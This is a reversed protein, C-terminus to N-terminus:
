MVQVYLVDGLLTDKVSLLFNLSQPRYLTIKYSNEISSLNGDLEFSIDYNGKPFIFPVHSYNKIFKTQIEKGNARITLTHYNLARKNETLFFKSEKSVLGYDDLISSITQSNKISNDRILKMSYDINQDNSINIEPSSRSWYIKSGLVISNLNMDSGLNENVHTISRYGLFIDIFPNIRYNVQVEPIFHFSYNNNSITNGEQNLSTNDLLLGGGLSGRLSLGKVGLNEYRSTLSFSYLEAQKRADGKNFAEIHEWNTEVGFNTLFDSGFGIRYQGENNFGVGINLYENGGFSSLSISFIVVGTILKIYKNSIFM